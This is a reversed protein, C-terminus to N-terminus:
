CYLSSQWCPHLGASAPVVLPVPPMNSHSPASGPADNMSLTDVETYDDGTSPYPRDSLTHANALQVAAMPLGAPLVEAHEPSSVNEHGPETIPGGGAVVQSEMLSWFEKITAFRDNSNVALARQIADAVAAPIEPVIQQVPVLPDARNVSIRTIRYLADIPVVGTLLTYLTAGFGYIDTPTGTGSTYQEPAGYGPSCHRVATTTAEQDYEKAIGFDVLVASEGSTPIIINSPKVDRHIIPPKQAHLYSLADAIPAMMEVVRALSFRKGPQKNRLQELNPGAVYDMLICILKNEPEDFVRYVRPLAPHDLRRLVEGEFLFSERQHREPAEVEKLAFVNGKVRRDKVRYVAGFGGQGLLDEIIYRDRVIRGQAFKTQPEEQM